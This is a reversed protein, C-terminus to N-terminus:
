LLKRFTMNMYEFETIGSQLDLKAFFQAGTLEDLLEDVLLIRYEDYMLIKDLARYDVCM